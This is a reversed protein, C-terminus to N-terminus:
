PAPQVVPLAATTTPDEAEFFDLDTGYTEKINRVGVLALLMVLAGVLMAAELRAGLLKALWTFLITTPVVAGRVVNAATTTVTARLNTGFQEAATTFFVPWYGTGFGLLFSLAYLFLASVGTAFVFVFIAAATLALASVLAWKRSRLRESLFGFFVGGVAAGGYNWAIMAGADLAGVLGMEAALEPSFTILVAITYWVPIGIIVTNLYTMLRRRSFFLLRLDGRSITAAGMKAFAASESILFQTGLLILGAVGGAIYAVRWTWLQAVVEAFVAGLIGLSTVITVGYGRLHKPMSESVLTVGAGLEGALGVGAIFRVLAYLPVNTVFANVINAVSYLAIAGFLTSLRGRKDGLMGWLFGGILMGIMQANLLLVGTDLLRDESIGLDRLSEQRVVAFLVLDYVDVFYGLGAVLVVRNFINTYTSGIKM